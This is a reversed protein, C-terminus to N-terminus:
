DGFAYREDFEVGSALLLARYEDKFTRHKHHEAQDKIYSEVKGLVSPSVSFAGYGDQWAFRSYSQDLSKMWKSSEAKITRVFEVLSKDKPLSCLIHIHDAMGGVMIPIGGLGKIVGGLYRFIRPLDASRMMAGTTKVHFILHIDVKVLSSAM